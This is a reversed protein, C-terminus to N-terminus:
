RTVGVTSGEVRTGLQRLSEEGLMRADSQPGIVDNRTDLSTGPAPSPVSTGDHRAILSMSSWVLLVIFFMAGGAVAGFITKRSVVWFRRDCDRCRYPSHFVHAGAESEVRGSRRVNTSGCHSCRRNM